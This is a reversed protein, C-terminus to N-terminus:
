SEQKGASGMGNVMGEVEKTLSLVSSCGRVLLFRARRSQVKECPDFAIAFSDTCHFIFSLPIFIISYSRLLSRNDHFVTSGGPKEKKSTYKNILM